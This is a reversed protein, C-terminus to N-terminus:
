SPPSEAFLLDYPNQLSRFRPPLNSVGSARNEVKGRAERDDVLHPEDRTALLSADSSVHEAPNM